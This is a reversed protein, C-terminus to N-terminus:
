LQDFTRGHFARMWDEDVTEVDLQDSDSNDGRLVAMCGQMLPGATLDHPPGDFAVDRLYWYRTGGIKGPEIPRGHHAFLHIRPQAREVFRRLRLSGGVLPGAPQQPGAHTILVDLTDDVLRDCAQETVRSWPDMDHPKREQEPGGGIFGVNLGRLDLATGSRVMHLRGYRDITFVDRHGAVEELAEFDEHNGSCAYVPAKVTAFDIPDGDMISRIKQDDGNPLPGPRFYDAFGLEEPDKKLYNRTAKDLREPEPFYGIDGCQLILDLRQEHAKQWYSALKWMLRLHGHLDGFVAIHM